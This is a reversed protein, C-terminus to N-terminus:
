FSHKKDFFEGTIREVPKEVLVFWLASLPETIMLVIVLSVFSAYTVTFRELFRLPGGFILEFSIRWHILYVLYSLKALPIWIRLSLFQRIWPSRYPHTNPCITTFLLFAQGVAYLQRSCAIFLTLLFDPPITLTSRQIMIFMQFAILGFFLFKRWKKPKQNHHKLKLLRNALIAGVIFSGFRAELPLYLRNMFLKMSDRESYDMTFTVNYNREIYYALHDPSLTSLPPYRYVVPLVQMKKPDFVLFTRVVSLILLSVLSSYMSIFKRFSFCLYLILPLIVYIQMDLSITWLPAFTINFYEIDFYNQCFIWINFHRLFEFVFGKQPFPPEGYFFLVFNALLMGPWFRVVRKMILEPYERLLFVDIRPFNKNWQGILKYTLLFGSLMFFIELNLALINNMAFAISELYEKWKLDPYSPVLSSFLMSIHLLMISLNAISRLGDIPDLHNEDSKSRKFLSYFDRRIQWYM